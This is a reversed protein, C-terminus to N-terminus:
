RKDSMVLEMVDAFQGLKEKIPDGITKDIADGITDFMSKAKELYDMFGGGTVDNLENEQLEIAKVMNEM